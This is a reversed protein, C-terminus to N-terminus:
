KARILPRSAGQTTDVGYIISTSSKSFEGVESSLPIPALLYIKQPLLGTTCVGFGLGVRCSCSMLFAYRFLSDPVTRRSPGRIPHSGPEIWLSSPRTVLGRHKSLADGSDAEAARIRPCRRLRSVTRTDYQFLPISGLFFLHLLFLITSLFSTRPYDSNFHLSITFPLTSTSPLSAYAEILSICSVVVTLFVKSISRSSPRFLWLFSLFFLILLFVYCNNTGSFSIWGCM